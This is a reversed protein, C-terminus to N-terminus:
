QTENKTKEMNKVIYFILMQSENYVDKMKHGFQIKSNGNANQITKKVLIREVKYEQYDLDAKTKLTHKWKNKQVGIKPSVVKM